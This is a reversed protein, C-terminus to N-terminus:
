PSPSSVSRFYPLAGRWDKVQCLKKRKRLYFGFILAKMPLESFATIVWIQTASM